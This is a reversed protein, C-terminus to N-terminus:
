ASHWKRERAHLRDLEREILLDDPCGSSTVRLRTPSIGHRIAFEVAAARTSAFVLSSRRAQGRELWRGLASSAPVDAADGVVTVVPVLFSLAARGDGAPAVVADPREAVVRWLSRTAGLLGRASSDFLRLTRM